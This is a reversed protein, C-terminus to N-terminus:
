REVGLLADFLARGSHVPSPSDLCTQAFGLAADALEGVTWHRDLVIRCITDLKLLSHHGCTYYVLCPAGAVSAALWQIVLKLQPDGARESGCGWNGTAVARMGTGAAPGEGTLSAELQSM